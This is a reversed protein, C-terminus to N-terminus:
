DGTRAEDRGPRSIRFLWLLVLLAAGAVATFVAALLGGSLLGQM